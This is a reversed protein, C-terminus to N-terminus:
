LKEYLVRTHLILNTCYNYNHIEVPRSRRPSAIQEHSAQHAHRKARRRLNPKAHVHPPRVCAGGARATPEVCSPSLPRADCSSTSSRCAPCRSSETAPPPSASSPGGPGSRGRRLDSHLDTTSTNLNGRPSPASCRSGPSFRTGACSAVQEKNRGPKSRSWCCDRM